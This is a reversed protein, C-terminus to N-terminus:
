ISHPLKINSQDIENVVDESMNECYNKFNNNM